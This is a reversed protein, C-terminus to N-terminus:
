ATVGLRHFGKPAWRKDYRRQEIKERMMLQNNAKDSLDPIVDGMANRRAAGYEPICMHFPKRPMGFRELMQGALRKLVRREPDDQLDEIHIRMGYNPHLRGSVIDIIGGNQDIADVQEKSATGTAGIWAMCSPVIAPLESIRRAQSGYFYRGMVPDEDAFDLHGDIHIYGVRVNSKKEVLARSYGMASPYSVYHDGGLFISFGGRKVIEYVGAALSDTTKMIDTPYVTFDGVDMIKEESPLQIREGTEVDILGRTGANLLRETLFRSGRRIGNPGQRPGFRGSSMASDFPGGSIVVSEPGVEEPGALRTGLFTPFPPSLVDGTGHM